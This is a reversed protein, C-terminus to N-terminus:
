SFNGIRDLQQVIPYAENKQRHTPGLSNSCIHLNFKWQYIGKSQPSIVAGM